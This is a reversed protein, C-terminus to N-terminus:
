AARWGFRQALAAFLAGYATAAQLPSVGNGGCRLRDVRRAVGDASGCIAPEVDPHAELISDWALDGPGPAYLPLDRYGDAWWPEMGRPPYRSAMAAGGRDARGRQKDGTTASARRSPLGLIEPDALPPTAKELDAGAGGSHPSARLTGIQGESLHQGHLGDGARDAMKGGRPAAPGFLSARFEGKGVPLREGARYALIFARERKHSAGVEAATFLSAAIEFGMAQLDRAVYHFSRSLHAGVNEGFFWRAGTEALVRRLYPWLWRPDDAGLRKGAESEGQCPYGAAISDVKGRWAGGDFTQLDDWVPACDLAKDEMRAVLTAAAYADPEVYCVTRAASFVANIGLDLGGIGACCSILATPPHFAVYTM